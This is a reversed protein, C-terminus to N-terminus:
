SILLDLETQERAVDEIRNFYTILGLKGIDEQTVKRELSRVEINKNNELASTVGRLMGGSIGRDIYFVITDAAKGWAFGALIGLEREEPKLDDLMGPQTFFLHSAYPSEGRKLCDGVCRKAYAVNEEVEGAYPSEIVVRKM